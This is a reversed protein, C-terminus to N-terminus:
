FGDGWRDFEVERVDVFIFKTQRLDSAFSPVAEDKDIDIVIGFGQHIKKSVDSFVKFAPWKRVAPLCRVAGFNDVRIPLESLFSEHLCEM